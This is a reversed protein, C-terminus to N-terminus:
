STEGSKIVNNGPGSVKWTIASVETGAVKIFVTTDVPLGVTYIFGDYCSCANRVLLQLVNDPAYSGTRIIRTKVWADPSLLIEGKSIEKTKKWYSNAEVQVRKVPWEGPYKITGTSTTVATIIPTFRTCNYLTNDACKEL